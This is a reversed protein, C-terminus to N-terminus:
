ANAETLARPAPAAAPERAARERRIDLALIILNTGITLV